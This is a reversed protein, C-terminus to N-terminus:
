AVKRTLGICWLNTERHVAWHCPRCLWRVDLPKDYDDHHAHVVRKGGAMVALGCRECPQPVLKGTLIAWQTKRRAQTNPTSKRFNKKPYAAKLIAAIESARSM